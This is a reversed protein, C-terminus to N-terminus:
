DLFGMEDDMIGAINRHREPPRGTNIPFKSRMRWVEAELISEHLKGLKGYVLYGMNSFTKALEEQHNELLTNNPVAVVPLGIRTADMVSGAGAHTIIMGDEGDEDDEDVFGGKARCMVNGFEPDEEFSFSEITIERAEPLRDQIKRIQHEKDIIDDSHGYQITLHTYRAAILARLFQEQIVEKILDDFRATAGITVFCLKKRSM